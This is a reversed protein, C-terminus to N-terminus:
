NILKLVKVGGYSIPCDMATVCVDLNESFGSTFYGTVTKTSGGDAAVVHFLAWGQFFGNTDVVPM